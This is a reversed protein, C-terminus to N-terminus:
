LNLDLDDIIASLAEQSEAKACAKRWDSVSAHAQPHTPGYVALCSKREANRLDTIVSPAIAHPMKGNFHIKLPSEWCIEKASRPLADFTAWNFKSPKLGVVRVRNDSPTM